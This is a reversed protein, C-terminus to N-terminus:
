IDQERKATKNQKWNLYKVACYSGVIVVVCVAAYAITLAEM